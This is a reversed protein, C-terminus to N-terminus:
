QPSNIVRVNAGLGLEGFRFWVPWTFGLQYGPPAETEVLWYHGIPVPRIDCYGNSDSTCSMDTAVDEPGLEAPYLPPNDVYLTLTAGALPNGEQDSKYADVYGCNTINIPIPAIFDSLVWSFGAASRSKLWISSFTVCRDQPFVQAMIIGMEGFTSRIGGKPSPGAPLTFPADPPNMDVVPAHNVNAEAASGLRVGKSWCPLSTSGGGCVSTPSGSTMWIHRSVIPTGTGGFDFSLLVDGETRLPTVGNASLMLSQNLEFDLHASGSLNAREWALHLYEDFDAIEHNVYIRSLDDRGSPVSSHVITPEADGERTGDALIDDQDSRVPDLGCNIGPCSITEIPQNWDFRAPSDITDPDLDGDASVFHSGNLLAGASGTVSTALVISLLMALMSRAKLGNSMM